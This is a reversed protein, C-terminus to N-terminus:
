EKRLSERKRAREVDMLFDAVLQEMSVFRCRSERGEIHKHNGKGRENDYAVIRRGDRGFFLSHKLGHPRESDVAPVRWISMEVMSGDPLSTKDHFLRTARM